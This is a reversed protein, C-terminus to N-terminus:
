DILWRKAKLEFRPLTGPEVLTVPVRLSLSEQFAKALRKALASDGGTEPEVEVSMEILSENHRITVRYEAVGGASRVIEEVASPYVNVGRVVVMDDVRGHIGGRLALDLRGCACPPEAATVLDGTRYRILPSGHRGLTTLVLEGSEGTGIPETTEPDIIEALYAQELVHLVGAQAPCQYTVPGVETMGHHDFVTAGPWAEEIRARTAPISGGPEGAVVITRVPSQALDFEEAEAVEALRLAYTPTCCLVNARHNFIARLRAASSLGGGPISLAGLAEGAEFALWFGIFPGFSFAFFIRDDGSVGAARFIDCWNDIMWQWNEPTDLWQMPAGSTGSTQHTRTYREVPFTLNSGFPPHEAHDAALELKTTFPCNVHFADLSEVAAEVGAQGLKAEYFANAPRVATLLKRLKALQVRELEERSSAPPRPM